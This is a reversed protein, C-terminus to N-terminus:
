KGCPGLAALFDSDMPISTTALSALEARAVQIKQLQALSAVADDKAKISMMATATTQSALWIRTKDIAEQLQKDNM